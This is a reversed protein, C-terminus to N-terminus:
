ASIRHRQQHHTTESIIRKAASSEVISLLLNFFLHTGIHSAWESFERAHSSFGQSIWGM